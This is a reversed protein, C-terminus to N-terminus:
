EARLAESPRIRAAQWSPWIALLNAAVLALAAVAVLALMPVVPVSPVGLSRALVGWGWRGLIVGAPVGLVVAPLALFSAHWFISRGVQRRSGGIAKVVALEHRNARVSSVLLQVFAAVAMLATLAALIGPWSGLRRLNVVDDQMMPEGILGPFREHLEAVGAERAQPEFRVAFDSSYAVPDAAHVWEPTVFAGRGPDTEYNDNVVVEGVVRLEHDQGLYSFAVTDGIDVGASDMTDAGLSIENTAAPARGRTITPVIGSPLGDVPEFTYVYAEAGAIEAELGLVGAAAAVGEFGRLEDALWTASAQGLIGTAFADWSVGYRAPDSTLRDLSSRLTPAAVIAAVAVAMGAVAPGVAWWPRRRGAPNTLALGLAADPPLGPTPTTRAAGRSRRRDGHRPSWVTAVVGVLLVFVVVAAMGVAVAAVNWGGARGVVAAARRATGIPGLPRIALAVLAASVAGIVGTLGWRPLASAALSRRTMGLARLPDADDLEQRAQRFLVLGVLVVAAVGLLAAAALTARGEYAVARDVADTAFGTSADAVILHIQDPVARDVIAEADAGEELWLSLGTQYRMFSEAGTREVWGPGLFMMSEVVALGGNTRVEVLSDSTRVVGTVVMESPPLSPELVVTDAEADAWSLGAVEMRDGPALGHVAALAENIM